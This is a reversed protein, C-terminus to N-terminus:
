AAIRTEVEKMRAMRSIEMDYKACWKYFTADSIAHEYCLEPLPFYPDIQKLIAIIQNDTFRSTKM